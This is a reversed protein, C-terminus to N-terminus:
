HFTAMLIELSIDNLIQVVVEPLKDATQFETEQLMRKVHGFLSFDSPAIDSSYLPYPAGRLGNEDLYQKVRKGVHPKANDAHVVLKRRDRADCLAGIEPIIHDVCYQSTGKQGKPLVSVLNFGHPNGVVTMM